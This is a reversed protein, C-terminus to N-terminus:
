RAAARDRDAREMAATYPQISTIVCRERQGAIGRSVVEDGRTICSLGFNSKSRIALTMNFDVSDCVRNFGLKYRNRFRDIVIINRPDGKIASFSDITNNRLCQQQPGPQAAAPSAFAGLAAAAALLTFATKGVITM